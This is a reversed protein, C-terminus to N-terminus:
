TKNLSEQVVRYVAEKVELPPDALGEVNLPWPIRTRGTFANSLHRLLDALDLEILSSPRLELLLTRMEALSRRTLVRLEDLQTQRDDPDREV